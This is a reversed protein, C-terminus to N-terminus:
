SIHSIVQDLHGGLNSMLRPLPQEPMPSLDSQILTLSMVNVKLMNYIKYFKDVFGRFQEEM